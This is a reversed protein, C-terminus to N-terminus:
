KTKRLNLNIFADKRELEDDDSEYYTTEELEEM